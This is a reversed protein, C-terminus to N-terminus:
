DAGTLLSAREGGVWWEVATSEWPEPVEWRGMMREIAALPVEADRAANRAFLNASPAEVYIIRVRAGYATFLDVLSGRLERSLNTANWVFGEGARLRERARERAAQVVTGQDGAAGAGTEERIADLSVQPLHAAHQRIWTDKGAGPLGSMLIVECRFGEHVAYNPDRSESRFYEFRSANSPFRKATQWCEMERCFLEFLDLRALMEQQDVCVRGLLDARALVTLLDCRVTQSIRFLTRESDARNLLHFPIQHQRVLACVLEREAFEVGLEWLIRRAQIAGRASHGRSTIRGEEVRTCVPKAVDHLLTAAFLVDREREGMARWEELGAMAECVMRVHTWVDGEAHFIADQPCGKMPELWGYPAVLEDWDVRWEPPTPTAFTSRTM